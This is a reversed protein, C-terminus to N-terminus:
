TPARPDPRSHKGPVIERAIARRRRRKLLWAAPGSAALLFLAAGLAALVVNHTPGFLKGAHLAYAWGLIRAGPGGQDWRQRRTVAGTELDVWTYSQGNPHPDGELHHRLRVSSAGPASLRIDVLRAGPQQWNGADVLADLTPRAVVPDGGQPIAAETRSTAHTFQADLSQTIPRWALLIGSAMSVLLLAGLALGVTTHLELLVRPAQGKRPLSLRLGRARRWALRTGLAVLLIGAGAGIALAAKGTDGAMLSAHLEFLTPYMGEQAERISVLVATAPDLRGEGRWTPTRVYAIVCLRDEAPMRLTLAVADPWRQRVSDALAQHSTLSSASKCPASMRWHDVPGLLILLVGTLGSFALLAGCVLGLSRHLLLWNLRPLGNM